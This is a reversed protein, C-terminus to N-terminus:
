GARVMLDAVMGAFGAPDPLPSGEALLAQGYLLHAYDALTADEASAEFRSKMKQLIAHDANVELIRKQRPMDPAGQTAKLLRELRPSMDDEDGVLCAASTTLRSSVRVEKVDADLVSQIRELLSANAKQKEKRAEEAALKETETGLEVEGKGVSQLKKGDYEALQDTLLEDVPDTLYLVEYGKARFAELHPSKELVARSEGTAFYITDQGSEASIREVYEKLSTLAGQGGVEASSQFLLLDKLKEANDHDSALGEKLVKGFADWFKRYRERDDTKIKELSDLVKKVVRKKIQAVRRDNQLIERSVNLSLDPSDVVGKVFRLYDPLLEECREMILVRNVYLQLGFKQERYYLDFPPRSPIFLLAQYEFTGEAKLTLTEYPAEWDHAVHKYFEAYEEATVESQTRTWIAKQSNLTNEGLTIPWTVFDSYKKVVKRIEYDQTFDALGNEPDAPRLHLIVTTGHGEREADAVTFTGDGTSEWRTASGEGARRTVVVVRDAAMFSSYFGVGFQGILSETAKDAGEPRSEKAEKLRATFERTGSRAITGLNAIVEARTMGIGNDHLTLTRADKDVELRIAGEKGTALANKLAEDTLTEYRLKDLADSANSILERLFIEKHSYLSHIMLDLLERAESKFVHTEAASM